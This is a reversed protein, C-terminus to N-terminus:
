TSAHASSLFAARSTASLGEKSSQPRLLVPRHDHRPRLGSCTAWGAACAIIQNLDFLGRWRANDRDCTM